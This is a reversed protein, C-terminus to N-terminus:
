KPTGPYVCTAFRAIPSPLCATADCRTVREHTARSRHRLDCGAVCRGGISDRSNALGGTASGPTNAPQGKSEEGGTDGLTGVMEVSNSSGVEVASPPTTRKSGFVAAAKAAASLAGAKTATNGDIRGDLLRMLAMCLKALSPDAREGHNLTGFLGFQPPVPALHPHVPPLHVHRCHCWCTLTRYQVTVPRPVARCWTAALARVAAIPRVQLLRWCLIVMSKTLLNHQLTM